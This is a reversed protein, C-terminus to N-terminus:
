CDKRKGELSMPPLLLIPQLEEEVRSVELHLSPQDGGKRVGSVEADWLGDIVKDVVQLVMTPQCFSLFEDRM